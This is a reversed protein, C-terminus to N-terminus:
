TSTMPIAFRSSCFVSRVPLSSPTPPRNSSSLQPTPATTTTTAEMLSTIPMASDSRPTLSPFVPLLRSTRSAPRSGPQPSSRSTPLAAVIPFTGPLTFRFSPEGATSVSFPLPLFCRMPGKAPPSSATIPFCSVTVPKLLLATLLSPPFHNCAEVRGRCPPSYPDLRSLDNLTLSGLTPGGANRTAPDTICAEDHLNRDVAKQLAWGRDFPDLSPIANFIFPFLLRLTDPYALGWAVAQLSSCASTAQIRDFSAANFEDDTFYERLFAATAVSGGSVSSMLLIHDHLEIGETRFTNDLTRLATATWAAAHIGGGTATIIVVPEDDKSSNHFAVRKVFDQPSKLTEQAVASDLSNAPFVHEAPWHNLALVVVTALTLVPLRFHDAYFAIGAMTWFVVVLLIVVYAIVPIARPAQPSIIGVLVTCLLLLSAVLPLLHARHCAKEKRRDAPSLSAGHQPAPMQARHRRYSIYGDWAPFIFDVLVFLALLGSLGRGIWALVPIPVPASIPMLLFYLFTGGLLTVTAVTHGAATIKETTAEVMAEYGPGLHRLWNTSRTLFKLPSPCQTNQIEDLPVFKWKPVLFAHFPLAKRPDWIWCYLISVLYWFILAAVAGALLCPVVEWYGFRSEGEHVANYGIRILLLLGPIQAPWFAYWEMKDVIEFWPPPDIGFRNKGYACVIRAALLAFWGPLVVALGTFIWQWPSFPTLIGRTISAAGSFMDAWTLGLMSLWLLLSFRMLYLYRLFDPFYGRALALMRRLRWSLPENSSAAAVTQNLATRRNSPQHPQPRDSVM